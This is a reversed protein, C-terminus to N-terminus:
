QPRSEPKRWDRHWNLGWLNELKVLEVRGDAFGINIAGPLIQTIDFNRPAASPIVGGHRAITARQMGPTGRDWGGGDYLDTDPPDTEMPWADVWGSDFFVPTASPQQIRTQRGLTFEPHDKAVFEPKDYLWGNVAYSGLYVTTGVSLGTTGAYDWVWALDAAGPANETPVPIPEQTAPCLLIKKQNGFYGMGMWLEHPNSATSYAAHAGNDTAYIYSALTLQKVNNVCDIQQARRRASSLVPLLMAALIGIIAIVVLLEILTFARRRNM